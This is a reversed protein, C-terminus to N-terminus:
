SLPTVVAPEPMREFPAPDFTGYRERFESVPAPWLLTLRGSAEDLYWSSCGGQTWVTRQALRDIEASYAAEAEATVELAAADGCAIRQELHDLAGLVFGIQAEIIEFASHHGLAANPADLVFLNPFGAVVTSAHSVMGAAWHAALTEGDRGTILRAFPPRTTEFGTAFILVDLGHRAGSAAVATGGEVAALASPELTVNPRQLAPFYDDSFVARKCGIEYDPTLLARLAPDAVQAARHREARRRLARLEPSGAIRAAFLREAEEALEARDPQQEGPGIARDGRPLVWAASRQFLTVSAARRAVEPLLQVASAGTGVIGVRLGDLPRDDWRASHFARGPFADLGPIRPTKPESLRGAAVVLTRARFRGHPTTLRWCGDDDDWAAHQVPEALRLHPELGEAHAAQRLYDLIEPGPAFRRSWDPKPRFSYSYLRSPIDCAVGPYRNDRWTGGLEDAREFILFDHRGARRLQAGMGIGAVGAGVIATGLLDRDQEDAM